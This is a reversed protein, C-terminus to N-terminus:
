GFHGLTTVSVKAVLDTGYKSLRDLEENAKMDRDTTNALSKFVAASRASISTLNRRFIDLEKRFKNVDKASLSRNALIKELEKLMNKLNQLEFDYIAGPSTINSGAVYNTLNREQESIIDDWQDYCAHCKDCRPMVGTTRADCM